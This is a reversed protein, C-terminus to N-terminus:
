FVMDGFRYDLHLIGVAIKIHGNANRDNYNDNVLLEAKTAIDHRRVRRRLVAVIM